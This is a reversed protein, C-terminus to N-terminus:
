FHLTLRLTGAPGFISSLNDSDFGFSTSGGTPHITTKVAAGDWYESKSTGEGITRLALGWGFEGGIAIKPFLFYEAGIFGRVGLGFSTDPKNELLRNVPNYPSLNNGYTISTGSSSVALGAEAGYFGQLRTKGKRWEMGFTMGINTNSTTTVDDVYYIPDPIPFSVVKSTSTNSALGLRVGLRYAKESDVYYKGLITQNGSLFNFVPVSNTGSTGVLNGLYKLFPSADISIAWDGSEPLIAVGKKTVLKSKQLHTVAFESVIRKNNMSDRTAVKYFEPKGSATIAESKVVSYITDQAYVISSLLTLTLVFLIRIKM